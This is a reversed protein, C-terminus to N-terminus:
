DTGGVPRVQQLGLAKACATGEAQIAEGRGACSAEKGPLDDQEGVWM